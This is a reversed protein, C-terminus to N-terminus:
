GGTWFIPPVEFIEERSKEQEPDETDIHNVFFYANVTKDVSDKGRLRRELVGVVTTGAFAPIETLREVGCLPRLDLM